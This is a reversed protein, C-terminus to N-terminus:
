KLESTFQQYADADMLEDLEAPNDPRVKVMWGGGFPDTNVTEPADVLAANMEVIEGSVPLNLDAVAKVSECAGFVEGKAFREGPDPLDVYVVDGLEHQAYDSVGVVVLEGQPLAWEHSPAYKRDQQVSFSM